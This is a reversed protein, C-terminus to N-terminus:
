LVFSITTVRAGTFPKTTCGTSYLRPKHFVHSSLYDGKLSERLALSNPLPQALLWKFSLSLEPTSHQLAEDLLRFSRRLYM